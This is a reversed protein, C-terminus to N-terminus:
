DWILKGKSAKAEIGELVWQLQYNHHWVLGMGKYAIKIKEEEKSAQNCTISFQTHVLRFFYIIILEYLWVLLLTTNLKQGRAQEGARERGKPNSYEPISKM